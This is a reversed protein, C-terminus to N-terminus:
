NKKKQPILKIYYVGERSQIIIPKGSMLSPLDLEYKGEGLVKINEVDDVTISVPRDKTYERLEDELWGLDKPVKEGEGERFYIFVRSGCSCGKMLEEAGDPYIKGCRACKHPM